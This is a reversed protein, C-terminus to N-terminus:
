LQARPREDAINSANPQKCLFRRSARRASRPSTLKRRDIRCDSEFLRASQGAIAKWTRCKDTPQKGAPFEAYVPECKALVEIDNPMYDIRTSGDRYGICVKITEVTDLGDINTVALIM